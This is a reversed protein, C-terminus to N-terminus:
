FASSLVKFTRMPEQSPVGMWLLSICFQLFIQSGWYSPDKSISPVPCSYIQGNDLVAGTHVDSWMFLLWWSWGSSHHGVSVESAGELMVLMFGTICCSRQKRIGTNRWGKGLWFLMVEFLLALLYRQLM